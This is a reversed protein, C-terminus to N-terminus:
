NQTATFTVTSSKAGISEDGPVLIGIDVGTQDTANAFPLADIALASAADIPMDAMTLQSGVGCASENSHCQFQYYSSTVTAGTGSWLATANVAVDVAVSGDNQVQFPPPSDDTTDNVGNVLVDGFNVNSVVMSITSEALVNAQTTGSALGTTSLKNMASFTGLASIFLAIVLLGAVWTTDSVGM